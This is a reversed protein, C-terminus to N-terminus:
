AKTSTSGDAVEALTGQLSGVAGAESRGLESGVDKLSTRSLEAGRRDIERRHPCLALSEGVVKKDRLLVTNPRPRERDKGLQGALQGM